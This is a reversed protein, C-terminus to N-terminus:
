RPKASEEVPFVDTMILQDAPDQHCEEEPEAPRLDFSVRRDGREVPQQEDDKPATQETLEDGGEEEQVAATKQGEGDGVSPEETVPDDEIVKGKMGSNFVTLFKKDIM